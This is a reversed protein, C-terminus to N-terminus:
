RSSRLTRITSVLIGLLAGSAVCGGIITLAWQLEYSSVM